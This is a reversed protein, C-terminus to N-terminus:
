PDHGATWALYIDVAYEPLVTVLALFVIALGSGIELEAVEAAWTLVFSSAVVCTGFVFLGLLPAAFPDFGCVRLVVGPLTLALAAALLVLARPNAGRPTTPPKM